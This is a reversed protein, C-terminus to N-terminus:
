LCRRLFRAQDQRYLLTTPCSPPHPQLVVDHFRDGWDPNSTVIRQSLDFVHDEGDWEPLNELWERAPNWPDILTSHVFRDLTEDTLAVGDRGAELILTNRGEKSLRHWHCEDHDADAYLLEGTLVNRRLRHQEELYTIADTM